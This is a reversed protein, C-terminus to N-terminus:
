GEFLVRSFFSIMVALGNRSFEHQRVIGTQLDVRKPARGAYMGRAIGGIIAAQSVTATM